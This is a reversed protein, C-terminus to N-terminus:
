LRKAMFTAKGCNYSSFGETMVLVGGVETYNSWAFTGEMSGTFEGGEGCASLLIFISFSLFFRM